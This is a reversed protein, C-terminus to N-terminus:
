KRCDEQKENDHYDQNQSLFALLHLLLQRLDKRYDRTKRRVMPGAWKM